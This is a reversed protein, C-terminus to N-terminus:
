LSLVEGAVAILPQSIDEEQSLSDGVYKKKKEITSYSYVNKCDM